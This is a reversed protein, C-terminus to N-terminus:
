GRITHESSSSFSPYFVNNFSDINSRFTIANQNPNLTYSALLPSFDEKLNTIRPGERGRGFQIGIYSPHVPSNLPHHLLFFIRPLNRLAWIHTHIRWLKGEHSPDLSASFQLMKWSIQWHKATCLQFKVLNRSEESKKCGVSFLM